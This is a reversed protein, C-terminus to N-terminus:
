NKINTIFFGFVQQYQVVVQHFPTSLNMHFVFLVPFDLLCYKKIKIDACTM